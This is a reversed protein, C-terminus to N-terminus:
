RRVISEARQLDGRDLPGTRIPMRIEAAGPRRPLARPTEGIANFAVFGFSVGGTEVVRPQWASASTPGAGVRGIGAADLRRITQRLAQEGYDGTHNNALSLVDFGARELAALVRPD